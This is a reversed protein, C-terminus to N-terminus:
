GQEGLAQRHAIVTCPAHEVVYSAIQGIHFSGSRRDPDIALVILQAGRDMAENVIAAGVDRAQALATDAEVHQRAAEQEAQALIEDGRQTAEPLDADLPLTRPVPIVHLFIVRAHMQKGLSCALSIVEDDGHPGVASGGVPVLVSGVAQKGSVPAHASREGHGFQPLFGRRAGLM